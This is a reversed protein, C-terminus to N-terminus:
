NTLESVWLSGDTATVLGGTSARIASIKQGPTVSKVEIWNAPLFADSTTATPSAAFTYHCASSSVIRVQRTQTGFASSSAAAASTYAVVQTTSNRASNESM